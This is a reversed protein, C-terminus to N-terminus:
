AAEPEAKPLWSWRDGAADVEARAPTLENYGSLGEWRLLTGDRADAIQV